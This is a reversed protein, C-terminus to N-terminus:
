QATHSAKASQENSCSEQKRKGMEERLAELTIEWMVLLERCYLCESLHEQAEAQREAPLDNQLYEHILQEQRSDTCVFESLPFAKIAETEANINKLNM